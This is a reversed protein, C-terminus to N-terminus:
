DQLEYACIKNHIGLWQGEQRMYLLVGRKEESIMRM